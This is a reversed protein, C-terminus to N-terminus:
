IQPKRLIIILYRVYGKLMTYFAEDFSRAAMLANETIFSQTPKLLPNNM